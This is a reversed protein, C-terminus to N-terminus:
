GASRETDRAPGAPRGAAGHDANLRALKSRVVGNVKDFDGGILVKQDPQVTVARITGSRVTQFATGGPNFSPDITGTVTLKRFKNLSSNTASDGLLVTGDQNLSFTSFNFGDHIYTQWTPDSGGDVGMRIVKTGGIGVTIRGDPNMRMSPQNGVTGPFQFTQGQFTSDLGGDANARFIRSSLLLIKGSPQVDMWINGHNGLNTPVFSADPSGDENFRKLYISSLTSPPTTVSHTYVIKNGQFIFERPGEQILPANFTHDVSGDDMLRILHKETWVGNENIMLWGGIYVRGLPDFLVERVGYQAQFQPTFTDDITGNSNIRVLVNTYQAGTDTVFNGILMTKGSPLPYPRAWGSKVLNSNFSSDLSGDPYIRILKGVVADNYRNFEGTALIKGDPQPVLREVYKSLYSMTEIRADFATDIPDDALGFISFTFLTLFLAASLRLLQKPFNM